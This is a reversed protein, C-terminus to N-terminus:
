PRRGTGINVRDLQIAMDRDPDSAEAMPHGWEAAPRVASHGQWTNDALRDAKQVLRM